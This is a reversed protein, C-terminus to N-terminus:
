EIVEQKQKESREKLIRQIVNQYSEKTNIKLEDLEDKTEKSIQITTKDGTPGGELSLWFFEEGRAGISRQQRLIKEAQTRDMGARVAKALDVFNRKSYVRMM